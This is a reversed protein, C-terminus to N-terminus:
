MANWGPKELSNRDDALVYNWKFSDGVSARVRQTVIYMMRNIILLIDIKTIQPEPLMVIEVVM